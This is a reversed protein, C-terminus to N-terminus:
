NHSVFIIYISIALSIVIIISVIYVPFPDGTHASESDVNTSIVDVSEEVDENESHEANDSVTMNNKDISNKENKRNDAYQDSNSPGEDRAIDRNLMEEKTHNVIKILNGNDDYTYETSGGDDYIVKIIRDNEDYYYEEAFAQNSNILVSYTGIFIMIIYFLLMKSKKNKEFVMM